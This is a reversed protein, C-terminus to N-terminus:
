SGPSVIRRSCTRTIFTATTPLKGLDANWRSIYSTLTRLQPLAPIHIRRYLNAIIECAEIDPASTLDEADHLRELLMVHRKPDARYLCVMGDGQLAQLGLHEHEAEDHPWTFKVVAPGGGTTRVPVVLACYGHLPPGDFTLDWEDVIDRVLRPLAELWAAWTEDRDSFALFIPPIDFPLL